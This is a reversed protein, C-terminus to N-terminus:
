MWDVCAGRTVPLSAADTVAVQGEGTRCAAYWDGAGRGYLDVRGYEPRDPFIKHAPPVLVTAPKGLMNAAYHTFTSCPSGILMGCCGLAFLDAAPHRSSQHGAKRHHGYEYPSEAPMDFVDFNKRLNPFADLSGTCSVFFAVDPVAQQIQAMVHEYWWDPV